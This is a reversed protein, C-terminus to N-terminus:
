LGPKSLKTLRCWPGLNKGANWLLTAKSCSPSCFSDLQLQTPPSIENIFFLGRYICRIPSWEQVRGDHGSLFLDTFFFVAYGSGGALAPM